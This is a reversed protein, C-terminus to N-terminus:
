VGGPQDCVALMPGADAETVIIISTSRPDNQGRAASFSLSGSGPSGASTPTDHPRRAYLIPDSVHPDSDRLAGGAPWPAIRLAANCPRPARRAATVPPRPARPGASAVRAVRARRRRRRAYSAAARGRAARARMTRARRGSTARAPRSRCTMFKMPKAILSTNYLTRNM